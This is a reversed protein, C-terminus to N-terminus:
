KKKKDKQKFKKSYFHHDRKNNPFSNINHKECWKILDKEQSKMIIIEFNKKFYKITM